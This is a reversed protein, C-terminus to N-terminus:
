RTTFGAEGFAHGAIRSIEVYANTFPENRFFTPFAGPSGIFPRLSWGMQVGVFAYLIIWLRLLWRHRPHRAVLPKYDRRIAHQAALTGLAFMGANFMLALNYGHASLYFLATVPALAALTVSMVAQGSLIAAFSARFDDRLGAITSIVFFAPLCLLTTVGLLLPVKLASYLVQLLREPSDLSSAGMVGGYLPGFLLILLSIRRWSTVPHTTSNTASGRLATDTTALLRRFVIHNLAAM